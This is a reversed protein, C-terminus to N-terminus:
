NDPPPGVYGNAVDEDDFTILKGIRPNVRNGSVHAGTSGDALAIAKHNTGQFDNNTIALNKINKIMLAQNAGDDCYNNNFIWNTSQGPGQVGEDPLTPGEAMLCQAAAKECRNGDIVIDSSTPYTDSYWTQLCDPHPGDGCGDNTCNSGDSIDTITNHVIKIHNGFFRIGDTDDGTNVPHVITNDQFTINDGLLKAGMSSAHTSIFGQVIVNSAEVNIGRVTATGGGSYIVPADITGGRTITLRGDSTGSLCVVRGSDVPLGAGVTAESTCPVAPPRRVGPAESLGRLGSLAVWGVALVVVVVVTAMWLRPHRSFGWRPLVGIRLRTM